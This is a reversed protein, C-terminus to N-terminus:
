DSFQQIVRVLNHHKNAPITYRRGTAQLCLTWVLVCLECCLQCYATGNAPLSIAVVNWPPGRAQLQLTNYRCSPQGMRSLKHASSFTEIPNYTDRQMLRCEVTALLALDFLM